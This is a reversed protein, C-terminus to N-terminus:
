CRCLSNVKQGEDPSAGPFHVIVRSGQGTSIVSRGDTPNSRVVTARGYRDFTVTTSERSRRGEPGAGGWLGLMFGLALALLSM